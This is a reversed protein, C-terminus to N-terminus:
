QDEAKWLKTAKLYDLSADSVHTSGNRIDFKRCLSRWEQDFFRSVDKTQYCSDKRFCPLGGPFHIKVQHIGHNELSKMMIFSAISFELYFAPVTNEAIKPAEKKYFNWAADLDTLVLYATTEIFFYDSCSCRTKKICKQLCDYYYTTKDTIGESLLCYSFFETYVYILIDYGYEKNLLPKAIEVAKDWCDFYLEMELEFLLSYSTKINNARNYARCAELNKLAREKDFSRYYRAAAQYYCRMDYGYELCFSKYKNFYQEIDAQPIQYFLDCGDIVASFVSEVADAASLSCFDPMQTDPHEEFIKLMEPFIFYVYLLLSSDNYDECAVQYAYRFYLMYGYDKALDAQGIASQIASMKAKGPAAMDYNQILKLPEFM